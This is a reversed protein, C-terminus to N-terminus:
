EKQLLSEQHNRICVFFHKGDVRFLSYNIDSNEGTVFGEKMDMLVNFFFFYCDYDPSLKIAIAM